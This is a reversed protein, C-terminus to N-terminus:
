GDDFMHQRYYEELRGEAEAQAIERTVRAAWGPRQWKPTYGPFYSGDYPKCSEPQWILRNFQPLTLALFQAASWGVADRRIPRRSYHETGCVEEGSESIWTSDAWEWASIFFFEESKSPFIRVQINKIEPHVGIIQCEQTTPFPVLYGSIIAEFEDGLPAPLAKPPALTALAKQQTLHADAACKDKLTPAGRCIRMYAQATRPSVDPCHKALWPLWEGHKLMAKASILAQGCEIAKELGAEVAARCQRHAESITHAIDFLTVSKNM